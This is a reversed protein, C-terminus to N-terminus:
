TKHDWRELLQMCAIVVQVHWAILMHNSSQSSPWSVPLLCVGKGEVGLPTNWPLSAECLQGDLCSATGEQSATALEPIRWRPNTKRGQTIEKAKGTAARAQGRM